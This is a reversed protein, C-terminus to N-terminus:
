PVSMYSTEAFAVDGYQYFFFSILSFNILRACADFERGNVTDTGRTVWEDANLTKWRECEYM